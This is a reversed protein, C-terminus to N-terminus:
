LTNGLILYIGVAAFIAIVFRHKVQRKEGLFVYAMVIQLPMALRILAQMSAPHTETLLYSTSVIMAAQLAGAVGVAIICKRSLTSTNKPIKKHRNWLLMMLFGLGGIILCMGFSTLLPSSQEIAQKQLVAAFAPPFTSIFTLLLPKSSTIKRFPKFLYSLTFGHEKIPPLFFLYVASSVIIIGLAESIGISYGFFLAVPIAYAPTLASLMTVEGVDAKSYAYYYLTRALLMCLSLGALNLLLPANYTLAKIETTVFFLLLIAAILHSISMVYISSLGTRKMVGSIWVFHSAISIISFLLYTLILM